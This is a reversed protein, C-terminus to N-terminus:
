IKPCQQYQLNKITAYKLLYSKVRLWKESTKGPRYITCTPEKSVALGFVVEKLLKQQDPFSVIKTLKLPYSKVRPWKDSTEPRYIKCTPEKSVALGFM